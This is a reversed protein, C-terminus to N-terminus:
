RGVLDIAEGSGGRNIELKHQESLDISDAAKLDDSRPINIAPPPNAPASAYSM